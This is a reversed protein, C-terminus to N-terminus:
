WIAEIFKVQVSFKRYVRLGGFNLFLRGKTLFFIFHNTIESLFVIKVDFVKGVFYPTAGDPERYLARLSAERFSTFKDPKQRSAERNNM